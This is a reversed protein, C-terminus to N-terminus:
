VVAVMLDVTASVLVIDAVSVVSLMANILVTVTVKVGPATDALTDVTIIEGV